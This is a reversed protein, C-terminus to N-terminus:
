KVLYYKNKKINKVCHKFLENSGISYANYRGVVTKNLIKKLTIPLKLKKKMKLNRVYYNTIIKKKKNNKIITGSFKKLYRYNIGIYEEIHHTFTTVDEFNAGLILIKGNVKNFLDFISDKGFCTELNSNNFYNWQKGIISFSFIPHNTRKTDKRKRFIESLLGTESESKKFDFIKKKCFSTTFSPVLLTGPEIYKILFNFFKDLSTKDLSYQALIGADAHLMVSDGKYIKVNKLTKKFIKEINM